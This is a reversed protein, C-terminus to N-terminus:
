HNLTLLIHDPADILEPPRKLACQANMPEICQGTSVDFAYGHWPCRVQNNNLEISEDLPGLLHPCVASHIIMGDTGQRLTWDNRGLTVTRPLTLPKPLKLEKKDENQAESFKQQLRNQRQQMMSEDEDWLKTYLGLMIQGMKEVQTPAVDPLDFTVTIETNQDQPALHTWIESIQQDGQYSRAVYESESRNVCLEVSATHEPNSWTRWGWDGGEDIEVFDFSTNHLWPLHEWDLVNEWVREINAAVVRKYTAVKVLNINNPNRALPNSQRATM